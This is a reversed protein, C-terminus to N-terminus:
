QEPILAKRVFWALLMAIGIGSLIGFIIRLETSEFCVKEFCWEAVTLLILIVSIAITRKKGLWEIIRLSFPLCMLFGVLLSIDRMCFATQSGNIIFCRAMEQHCLLDGLWYIAGGLGYKSWDHDILSSTGDLDVFTGYPYALPVSIIFALLLSSVVAFAGIVGKEDM